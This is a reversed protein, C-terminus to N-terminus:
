IKLINDLVRVSFIHRPYTAHMGPSIWDITITAEKAHIVIAIMATTTTAATTTLVITHVPAAMSVKALTNSMPTHASMITPTSANASASIMATAATTATKFNAMGVGNSLTLQQAANAQQGMATKFQVWTKKCAQIGEHWTHEVNAYGGSGCNRFWSGGRGCCSYKGSKEITVCKLCATTTTTIATIYKYTTM